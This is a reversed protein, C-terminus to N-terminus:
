QEATEVNPFFRDGYGEEPLARSRFFDRINHAFARYDTLPTNCQFGVRQRRIANRKQLENIPKLPTSMTKDNKTEAFRADTALVPAKNKAHTTFGAAKVTCNM